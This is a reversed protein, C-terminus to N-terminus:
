LTVDDFWTISYVYVYSYHTWRYLLFYEYIVFHGLLDTYVHITYVCIDGFHFIILIHVTSAIAATWIDYISTTFLSWGVGLPGCWGCTLPTECQLIRMRKIVIDRATAARADPLWAVAGHSRLADSAVYYSACACRVLPNVAHFHFYIVM